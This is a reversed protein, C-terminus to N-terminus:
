TDREAEGACGQRKGHVPLSETPAGSARRHRKPKLVPNEGLRAIADDGLKSRINEIAQKLLAERNTATDQSM